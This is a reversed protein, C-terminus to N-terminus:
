RDVGLGLRLRRRRERRGIRSWEREVRMEDLIGRAWRRAMNLLRRM